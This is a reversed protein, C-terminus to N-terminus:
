LLGPAICYSSPEACGFPLPGSVAAQSHQEHTQRLCLLCALSTQIREAVKISQCKYGLYFEDNKGYSNQVIPNDYVCLVVYNLFNKYSVIKMSKM